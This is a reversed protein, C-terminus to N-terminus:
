QALNRSGVVMLGALVCTALLGWAAAKLKEWAM